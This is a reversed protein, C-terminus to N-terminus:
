CVLGVGLDNVPECEGAEDDGEESDELGEEVSSSVWAQGAIIALSSRENSSAILRQYSFARPPSGDELDERVRQGTRGTPMPVQKV